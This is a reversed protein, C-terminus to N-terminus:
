IREKPARWLCSARGLWAAWIPWLPCEWAFISLDVVSVFEDVLLSVMFFQEFQGGPPEGLGFCTAGSPWLPYQHVVSGFKSVMASLKSLDAVLPSEGFMGSNAVLPSEEFMLSLIAVLHRMSTQFFNSWYAVLSVAVLNPWWPISGSLKSVDAM